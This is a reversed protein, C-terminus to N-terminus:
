LRDVRGYQRAVVLYGNGKEGDLFREQAKLFFKVTAQTLRLNQLKFLRSEYKRDFGSRQNNGARSVGGGAARKRLEKTYFYIRLPEVMNALPYGYCETHQIQFGSKELTGALSAREYRRYHGAWIDAASWRKQHAPVSLVLRGGPKLWTRWKALAGVDDEIHELVEFALVYDFNGQWDNRTHDVIKVNPSKQHVYRALAYAQPSAEYGVCSFGRTALDHLLTGAGCGIELVSGKPLAEMLKLIRYRRLVFRPAPVWGKEPIVLGYLPHEYM